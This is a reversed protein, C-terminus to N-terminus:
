SGVAEDTGGLEKKRNYWDCFIRKAETATAAEGVICWDGNPDTGCMGSVASWSMRVGQAVYCHPTTSGIRKLDSPRLM